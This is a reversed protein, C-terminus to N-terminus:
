PPLPHIHAAQSMPEVQDLDHGDPGLELDQEEVLIGVLPPLVVVTEM